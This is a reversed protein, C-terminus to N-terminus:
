SRNLFVSPLEKAAEAVKPSYHKRLLVTEWVTAAYPNSIEPEDIDMKYTGDGVRDETSFLGRLRQQHKRAMKNLMGLIALASKEPMNLSIIMLRKTFAAIRIPTNSKNANQQFFITNLARILMEIETSVNIRKPPPTPDNPDPLRLSKTSLELDPSLSLPLLTSYLHTTFFTLDINMGEGKQHLLVNAYHSVKSPPLKFHPPSGQGSLLAFATIVCLLAERTSNLKTSSETEAEEDEFAATILEKLAM